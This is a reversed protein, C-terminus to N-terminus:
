NGQQFLAKPQDVESRTSIIKPVTLTTTNTNDFILPDYTFDLTYVAQTSNRNFSTLVVNSFAKASSKTGDSAIASYTTFKLTDVFTNITDATDATGTFTIKYLTYDINLSTISVKAPTLQNIYSFLRSTVPKKANLAPLSNLQNQVTLIQNLNATGKLSSSYTAIDKDINSLNTKQVVEVILLLIIFVILSFATLIISIAMVLRKIRQAKVFAQKIDPLLNLQVM